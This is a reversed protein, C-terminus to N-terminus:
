WNIHLLNLIKTLINKNHNIINHLGFGYQYNPVSAFNFDEYVIFYKGRFNIVLKFSEARIYM